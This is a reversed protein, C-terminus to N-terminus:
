NSNGKWIIWMYKLYIVLKCYQGVIIIKKRSSSKKNKIIKNKINEELKNNPMAIVSNRQGLSSYVFWGSWLGPMHPLIPWDKGIGNESAERAFVSKDIKRQRWTNVESHWICQAQQWPSVSMKSVKCLIGYLPALWM